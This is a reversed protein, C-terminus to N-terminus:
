VGGGNRERLKADAKRLAMLAVDQLENRYELPKRTVVGDPAYVGFEGLRAVTFERGINHTFPMGENHSTRVVQDGVNFM